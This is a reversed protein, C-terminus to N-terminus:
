QFFTSSAKDTTSLSRPKESTPMLHGSLVLTKRKTASLFITPKRNASFISDPKM